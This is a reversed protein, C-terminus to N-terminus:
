FEDFGDEEAWGLAKAKQYGAYNPQDIAMKGMTAKILHQRLDQSEVTLSGDAIQRCLMQNLNIIDDNITQGDAECQLLNHLRKIQATEFASAYKAERATIALVNQVIRAHFKERGDLKPAVVNALFASVAEILTSADPKDQM